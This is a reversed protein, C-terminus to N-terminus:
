SYYYYVFTTARDLPEQQEMRPKIYTKKVKDDSVQTVENKEVSRFTTSKKM